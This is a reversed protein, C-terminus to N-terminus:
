PLRGGGEPIAMQVLLIKVSVISIQFFPGECLLPRTEKETAMPKFLYLLWHETPTSCDLSLPFACHFILPTHLPPKGIPPQPLPPRTAACNGHRGRRPTQTRPGPSFSVHTPPSVANPLFLARPEWSLRAGTTEKELFLFSALFIDTRAHRQWDTSTAM